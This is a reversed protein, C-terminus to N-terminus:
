NTDNNEGEGLLNITHLLHQLSLVFSKIIDACGCEKCFLRFWRKSTHPCKKCTDTTLCHEVISIQEKSLYDTKYIKFYEYTEPNDCIKKLQKKYHMFLNAM